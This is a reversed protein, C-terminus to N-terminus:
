CEFKVKTAVPLYGLYYFKKEESDTILFTNKAMIVVVKHGSNEVM